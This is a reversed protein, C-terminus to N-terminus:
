RFIGSWISSKGMHMGSHESSGSTSEGAAELWGKMKKIEETQDLVIEKGIDKINDDQTTKLVKEVMVLATEHHGIMEKLFAIDQKDLAM